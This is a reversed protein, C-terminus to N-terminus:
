SCIKIFFFKELLKLETGGGGRGQFFKRGHAQAQVPQHFYYSIVVSDESSSMSRMYALHLGGQNRYPLCFYYQPQHLCIWSFGSAPIFLRKRTSEQTTRTSEQHTRIPEQETRISEHKMSRLQSCGQVYLPLTM